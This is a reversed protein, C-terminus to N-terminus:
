GGGGAHVVALDYATTGGTCFVGDGVSEDGRGCKRCEVGRMQTRSCGYCLGGGSEGWVAETTFADVQFVEQQM